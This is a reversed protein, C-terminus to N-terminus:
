KLLIMKKVSRFDNKGELTTAIISYFYIGSSLNSANYNEEYTGALQIKNSLVSVVEGLSNYIELRVKSDAPISYKITTVPNFPNPYNQKLTFDPLGVSVDGVETPSIEASLYYQGFRNSWGHIKSETDTFISSNYSAATRSAPNDIYVDGGTVGVYRIYDRFATRAYSLYAYNGTESYCFGAANAAMLLYPIQGDIQVSLTTDVFMPIQLPRYYGDQNTDGGFTATMLYTTMRTILGLLESAYAPDNEKFVEKYAKIVPELIYCLQLTHRLNKQPEYDGYYVFGQRGAENERHLVNQMVDKIVDPITKNGYNTSEIILDPEIRWMTVLNDVLWGQLRIESTNIYGNDNFSEYIYQWVGRSIEDFGDKGRLEGTLLWYLAYGQMWTHTPRGGGFSNNPSEHSPRSEWNKQYNFAMGDNNTHYIDFDIEHAAFVRAADAFALMGTRFFQLFMGYSWDYHNGSFKGDDGGWTLDGYDNWKDIDEYLHAWLTIGTRGPPNELDATNVKARQIKEYLDFDKQQEEGYGQKPLAIEGWSKVSEYYEPQAAAIFRPFNYGAAISGNANYRCEFLTPVGTSSVDIQWSKEMGQAFVYSTSGSLLPLGFNVNTVNLSGGTSAADWGFSNNNKLTFLLRIINKNRFFILRTRFRILSDRLIVSGNKLIGEASIVTKVPGSVEIKWKEISPVARYNNGSYIVEFYKGTINLENKAFSFESTGTNIKLTDATNKIQIGSVASHNIGTRLILNITGSSPIDEQFSVQLWRISKDPWYAVPNFQAPIEIGDKLLQVNESDFLVGKAFPVGSTIPEANRTISERNTVSLPIDTAFIVGTNIDIIVAILFLPIQKLILVSLHKITNILLDSASYEM